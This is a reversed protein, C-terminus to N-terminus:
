NFNLVLKRNGKVVRIVASGYASQIYPSDLVKEPRYNIYEGGMTPIGTTAMNFIIEKADEGCSTYHLYYFGPVVTRRLKIPNDLIDEMFSGFTTHRSKDSAEIVVAGYKDTLTIWSSDQSWVYAGPQPDIFLADDSTDVLLRFKKRSYKGIVPRVAGYANGHMAFIWGDKEEVRDLNKGFFVEMEGDHPPIAPFWDPNIQMWRRAQQTIMVRRYQVHQRYCGEPCIRQGDCGKFILGCHQDPSLKCHVAMPDDMQVGLIYNPSVWSYHVFRPETNCLMSRELGEPRPLVPEEAGPKRSIYTYEGMGERDFAMEWVIAPIRYDGHMISIFNANDGGKVNMTYEGGFYFSSINFMADRWVDFDGRTRSGGKVGYLADQAWECWILDQFMRAKDRLAENECFHYVDLLYTITVNMYGTSAHELFFGKRARETFYENFFRVWARYHDEATLPELITKSGNGPPGEYKAGGYMQHFWYGQGAGAGTDPYIRNAYAPENNFIQSSILSSVKCVVDHNESGVMWWTSQNAIHIDDKYKVREWLEELLASEVEPTIRGPFLNSRSGFWFYLYYLQKTLALHWKDEMRYENRKKIDSTTFLEYLIHNTEEVNRGLYLDAIHYAMKNRLGSERITEFINRIREERTAEARVIWEEIPLKLTQDEAVYNRFKESNDKKGEGSHFSSILLLIMLVSLYYLPKM